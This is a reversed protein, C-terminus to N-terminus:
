EHLVRDNTNPKEISNNLLEQGEKIQFDLSCETNIVSYASIYGTNDDQILRLIERTIGFGERGDTKIDIEFMPKKMDFYRYGIIKM